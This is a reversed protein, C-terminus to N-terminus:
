DRPLRLLFEAGVPSPALRLDGGLERALGQALALGLGLGSINGDSQAKGRTFARFVQAREKLDIGPGHDKVALVLDRREVRAILHIRKDNSSAAYKCANDVLNYIIRELTPPDTTVPFDLLSEREVILEMGAQDCRNRLVPALADVIQEATLRARVTSPRQRKSLRAYDLVSEVIRALRTSESKLTGIYSRQSEEDRVLGDALMQSYMVFTTLPTRLEHTVATVFQGRREALEMSARLVLAIVVVAALALAWTLALTTRVPTLLPISASAPVPTVLEAPIAALTRGLVSASAAEVGFPLPALKAEPFLDTVSGILRARLVPWDVWFGQTITEGGLTITREFVLEAAEGDPSIWRPLFPGTLVDDQTAAQDRLNEPDGERKPAAGPASVDGVVPGPVPTGTKAALPETLEVPGARQQRNSPFVNSASSVAEQRSKYEQESAAVQSAPAQESQQPTQRAADDEPPEGSGFQLGAARDTALAAAKKTDLLMANLSAFRESATAEGYATVYSGKALESLRGQPVQPSTITGDPNIQYHLRVGEELDSLLPSPVLTETDSAAALMQSYARGPVYFPQYHFYPRASERAIIPTVAADMRWLALRVSEQYRADRRAELEGRELRLAHVTMWGLAGLVGLVGAAFVLISKRVM